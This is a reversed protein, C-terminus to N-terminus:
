NLTDANQVLEEQIVAESNSGVLTIPHTSEEQPFHKQGRFTPQHRNPKDSEISM